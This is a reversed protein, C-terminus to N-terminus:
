KKVIKFSQGNLSVVYIGQPLHSLNIAQGESVPQATVLTGSPQFVRITGTGATTIQQGNWAFQNGSVNDIADAVSSDLYIKTINNMAVTASTGDTKTVVVNGDSFTIKQIDKVAYDTPTSEGTTLIYLSFDDALANLSFLIAIALFLIKKM